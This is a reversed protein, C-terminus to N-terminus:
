RSSSWPQLQLANKEALAETLIITASKKQLCVPRGSVDSALCNDAEKPRRDLSQVRHGM